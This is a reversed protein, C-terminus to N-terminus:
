SRSDEHAKNEYEQIIKEHFKIAQEFQKIQHMCYQVALPDPDGNKLFDNLQEKLDNEDVGGIVLPQCGEKTPQIRVLYNPQADHTYEVGFSYRADKDGIKKIAKKVLKEIEKM